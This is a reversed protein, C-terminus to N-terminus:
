GFPFSIRAGDDTSAHEAVRARSGTHKTGQRLYADVDIDDARRFDANGAQYLARLEFFCNVCNM